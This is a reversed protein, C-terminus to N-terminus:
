AALYLAQVYLLNLGKGVVVDHLYNTFPQVVLNCSASKINDGLTMGIPKRSEQLQLTSTLVLEFLSILMLYHVDM